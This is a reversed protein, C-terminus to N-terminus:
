NNKIILTASKLDLEDEATFKIENRGSRLQDCVDVSFKEGLSIMFM